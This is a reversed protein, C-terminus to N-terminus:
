SVRLKMATNLLAQKKDTDQSLNIRGMGYWGEEKPDLAINGGRVFPLIGLPV